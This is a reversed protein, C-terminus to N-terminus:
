TFKTIGKEKLLSNLEGMFSLEKGKEFGAKFFGAKFDKALKGVNKFRYTFNQVRGIKRLWSKQEEESFGDYQGNPFIISCGGHGYEEYVIGKVGVKNGLCPLKLELIDGVVFM